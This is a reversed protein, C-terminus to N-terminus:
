KKEAGKDAWEDNWLETIPFNDNDPSCAHLFKIPDFGKNDKEFRHALSMALAALVGRRIMNSDHPSTGLTVPFLDRIEKALANYHQASWKPM